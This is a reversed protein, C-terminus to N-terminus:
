GVSEGCTVLGRSSSFIQSFLRFGIVLFVNCMLSVTSARARQEESRKVKVEKKSFLRVKKLM